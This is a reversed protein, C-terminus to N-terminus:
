RSSRVPHSPEPTAPGHAMLSPRGPPPPLRLRTVCAPPVEILLGAPDATGLVGALIVRVVGGHTLVLTHGDAAEGVLAQWAGLVRERFDAFPEAGPPTYGVPDDWFRERQAAPIEAASRGEWDGFARERLAASLVLPVGREAALVRAFDACRAAPSSLICRCDAAGLARHLQAWGTESLPDDREGRFRAGGQTEGHRVLDIFRDSV